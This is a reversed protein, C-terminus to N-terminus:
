VGHYFREPETGQSPKRGTNFFSFTSVAVRNMYVNMEKLDSQLLARVFDNYGSDYDVFWGHIMNEFM